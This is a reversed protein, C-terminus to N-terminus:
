AFPSGQHLCAGSNCKFGSFGKLNDLQVKFARLGSFDEDLDLCGPYAVRVLEGKRTSVRLARKRCHKAMLASANHALNTRADGIKFHAVMNDREVRGLAPGAFVAQVRFGIETLAYACGLALAHHWVAGGAEGILALLYEM